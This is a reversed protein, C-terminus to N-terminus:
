VSLDERTLGDLENVEIVDALAQIAPALTLTLEGHWLYSGPAARVTVTITGFEDAEPLAEDAIDDASVDVGFRSAMASVLEGTTTQGDLEFEVSAAGPMEAMDVRDYFIERSGAYPLGEQATVTVVTNKTSQDTAAPASFVLQGPQWQHPNAANILALLREQPSPNSM